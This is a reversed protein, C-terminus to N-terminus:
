PKGDQPGSPSVVDRLASRKPADHVTGYKYLYRQRESRVHEEPIPIVEGKAAAALMMFAAKELIQSAVFAEELDRGCCMVGHNALLVANEEGITQAVEESIRVHQGAPVYRTCNVQGGIIQVLDEVFPPIACHLCSVATAYPSHSHIIAGVEGKKNLVARHVETESSPLRHGALVKGESSVLVFDSPQIVEYAIRSPTVLFGEAVRVSINGWTGVFYGMKELVRCKEIIASKLAQYNEGM